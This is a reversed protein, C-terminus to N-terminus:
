GCPGLVYKTEKLVSTEMHPTTIQAFGIEVREGIPLVHGGNSARLLAKEVNM